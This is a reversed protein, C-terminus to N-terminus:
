KSNTPGMIPRVPRPFMPPATTNTILYKSSLPYTVGSATMTELELISFINLMESFTAASFMDVM